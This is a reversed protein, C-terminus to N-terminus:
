SDKDSWSKIRERLEIRTSDVKLASDLTSIAMDLHGQLWYSNAKRELQGVVNDVLEKHTVDAEQRAIRERRLSIEMSDRTVRMENKAVDANRASENAQRAKESAMLLAIGAVIGAIVAGALALRTKRLMRLEGERISKAHELENRLRNEEAERDREAELRAAERAKRGEEVERRKKALLIPAILTDHSLEYSIGGTSSRETRLLHRERLLLDLSQESISELCVLRHYAIRQGNLILKNEIFTRTVAQDQEPLCAISEDYFQLFINDFEPIDDVTILSKGLREIHSCLIQLQTTEVQPQQGSTLHDLIRQVAQPSYQFPQHQYGGELLAPRVVAEEAQARSLPGLQYKHHQLDPLYDALRNLESYRDERIAYVVRIEMERHLLEFEGRSLLAQNQRQRIELVSKFHPPVARYLLGALQKKFAFISAEPHSFLEEFQDFILYYVKSAAALLSDAKFHYWLSGENPIIRDLFTEQVISLAQHVADLPSSSNADVYTGIRVPMIHAAGSAQLRPILGANLLSSKGLGSKAYLLVQQHTDVLETLWELESSRGFFLEKQDPNFPELGPYRYQTELNM